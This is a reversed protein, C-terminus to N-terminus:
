VSVSINLTAIGDSGRSVSGAQHIYFLCVDGAYVRGVQPFNFTIPTNTGAPYTFPGTGDSNIIIEFIFDQGTPPTSFYLTVSQILGTANQVIYPQGLIGGAPVGPNVIGPYSPALQWSHTERNAPLILQSRRQIAQFYATWDGPNAGKDATIDFQLYTKDIEKWVLQSIQYFGAAVVPQSLLVDQLMGIRLGATMTSYMLQSPIGGNGFRRLLGQAYQALASPDTIDNAQAVDDYIGSNGEIAARAVIESQNQFYQVPPLITQYCVELTDSATLRVNAQNQSVGQSAVSFGQPPIWYWDWSGPPATSVQNLTIVRQPNTNVKVIPAAAIGFKTVFFFRTGDPPQQQSPFPGPLAVSFIDCWLSSTQTNSVILERNRYKGRYTRITASEGTGGSGGGSGATALVHGDNDRLTFPASTVGSSNPFFKLVKYPDVRFDWATAAALQNLAQRIYIWNFILPGLNIGPDGASLDLTIGDGQLWNQVIDELISTLTNANTLPYSNGIARRDFIESFDTLKVDAVVRALAQYSSETVEEVSGGFVRETGIYVYVPQGVLPHLLGAPDQMQFFGTAPGNLTDTWTLTNLIILDTIDQTGLFVSTPRPAATALLVAGQGFAEASPIGYLGTISPNTGVSGGFGFAEASPIGADGTLNPAIALAGATGVVLASPIGGGCTGYVSQNGSLNVTGGVCGFAEASVIGTSGVISQPSAGGQGQWFRRVPTWLSTPEEYLHAVESPNLQRYWKAIPGVAGNIYRGSGFISGGGIRGRYNGNAIQVGTWNSFSHILKGNVYFNTGGDIGNTVVIHYWEDQVLASSGIVPDSNGTTFYIAPFQDSRILFTMNFTGSDEEGYIIGYSESQSHWKLWMAVSLVPGPHDVQDGTFSTSAPVEIWSTSGDLIAANGFPSSGWGPGHFTAPNNGLHDHIVSGAGEGMGLLLALNQNHPGGAPYGPFPVRPPYRPRIIM